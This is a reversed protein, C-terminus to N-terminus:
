SQHTAQGKKAKKIQALKFELRLALEEVTGSKGCGFCLFRRGYVHLSPTQEDHWPCFTPPISEKGSLAIQIVFWVVRALARVLVGPM